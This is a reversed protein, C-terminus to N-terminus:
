SRLHELPGMKSSPVVLSKSAEHVHGATGSGGASGQSAAQSEDSTDTATGGGCAALTLSALVALVTFLKKM